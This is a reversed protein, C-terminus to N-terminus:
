ETISVHGTVMASGHVGERTELWSCGRRKAVGMERMATRVKAVADIRGNDAYINSLLTQFGAEKPELENLCQVALEAEDIHGHIRCANLLAGWVSAGPKFPITAILDKAENIHGARALLDVVSGYNEEMPMVGYEPLMAKFYRLGEEVLGAHSCASILAVFTVNDPKVNEEGVMSKFVKIAGEGDGHTGYGDIMSTWSIRNKVPMRDFQKKALHIKGCKSYMDLLGNAILVEKDLGNKLAYCHFEKGNLLSTTRACLPLVIAMTVANPKPGDNPLRSLSRIVCWAEEICGNEVYGSIMANWVTTTNHESSANDKEFVRHAYLLCSCKGYMDILATSIFIDPQEQRKFIFCHVAKGLLLDPMHACAAVVTTLTVSNPVTGGYVMEKFVDIASSPCDNQVYAAILVSWAVVNKELLSDFAHRALELRGCRGYLDVLVSGVFVNTVTYTSIKVALGHVQEGFSLDRIKVCASLVSAITNSNPLVCLGTDDDANNSKDRMQSFVRLADDAHDNQTYGAIVASWTVVNPEPMKEFLEIATGCNGAHFFSSIAANWSISNPEPMEYFLQRAATLSGCAAYMAIVANIVYADSQFGRKNVDAHISRGLSRPFSPKLLLPFTFTNPQFGHNRMHQYLKFLERWKGQNSYLNLLATQSGM